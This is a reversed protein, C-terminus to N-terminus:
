AYVEDAKAKDGYFRVVSFEKLLPGKDACPGSRECYPSM